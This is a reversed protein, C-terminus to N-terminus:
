LRWALLDWKLKRQKNNLDLLLGPILIPDELSLDQLDPWWTAGAWFPTILVLHASERRTKSLIRGIQNFPPFAYLGKEGRWTMSFADTATAQPDPFLTVFHKTQTNFRTAFLDLTLNFRRHLSEFVNPPLKLESDKLLIRSYFDAEELNIGPVYKARLTIGRELCLDWLDEVEKSLLPIRGGQKNLYSVATTNDSQHLLDGGWLDETRIVESIVRAAATTELRTSHQGQLEREWTKAILTQSSLGGYGMGSSDSTTTWRPEQDLINRGNWEQISTLWFELETLVRSSLPFFSDWDGAERLIQNKTFLMARTRLRWPLIANSMATIKGLLRALTRASAKGAKVMKRTDKKLATLKEKALSFTMTKSNIVHGLYLVRKSPQLMSKKMNITIGLNLLFSFVWDRILIATKIHPGCFVLLDDIYIVCRIGHARLVKMVTRMVKTWWRPAHTQGFMMGTFCKAKGLHWFAGYKWFHRKYFLHLYADKFDITFMFDHERILDRVDRISDMKFHVKETFSNPFRQDIIPRLKNKQEVVFVGNFVATDLEEPPLPVVVGMDEYRKIETDRVTSLRASLPYETVDHPPPAGKTFEYTLGFELWSLVTKNVIFRRWFPLASRLRMGIKTKPFLTRVIAEEGTTPTGAVVM